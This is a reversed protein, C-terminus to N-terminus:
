CVNEILVFTFNEYCRVPFCPYAEKGMQSTVKYSFTCEVDSCETETNEILIPLLKGNNMPSLLIFKSDYESMIKKVAEKDNTTHLYAIQQTTKRDALENEELDHNLTYEVYDISPTKLVARRGNREILDGWDWWAIITDNESTYSKICQDIKMSPIGKLVEGRPLFWSSLFLIVVLSVVVLVMFGYERGRKGHEMEEFFKDVYKIYELPYNSSILFDKIEEKGYGRQINEKVWKKIKKNKM